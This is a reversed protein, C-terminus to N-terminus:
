IETMLIKTFLERSEVSKCQWFDYGEKTNNWLFISSITPIESLINNKNFNINKRYINNADYSNNLLLSLIIEEKMIRFTIKLMISKLTRIMEESKTEFEEHNKFNCRYSTVDYVYAMIDPFNNVKRKITLIEKFKDLLICDILKM